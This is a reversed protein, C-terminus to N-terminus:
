SLVVSNHRYSRTGLAFTRGLRPSRPVEMYLFLLEQAEMYNRNTVTEMYFEDNFSRLWLVHEVLQAFLKGILM